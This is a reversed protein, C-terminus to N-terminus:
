QNGGKKQKRATKAKGNERSILESLDCELRECITDLTSLGILKMEGKWLRAAMAPQFDMLKQLQYATTVGRAEAAQRITLKVM